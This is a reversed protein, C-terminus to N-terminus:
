KQEELARVRHDLAEVKAHIRVVFSFVQRELAKLRESVDGVAATEMPIKPTKAVAAPKAAAVDGVAAAEVPIKAIAVPKAAAADGVAGAVGGEGLTYDFDENAAKREPSAM